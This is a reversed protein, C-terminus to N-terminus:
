GMLQEMFTCLGCSSGAPDTYVPICWYPWLVDVSYPFVHILFSLGGLKTLVGYKWLCASPAQKELSGMM